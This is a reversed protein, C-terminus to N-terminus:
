GAADEWGPQQSPRGRNFVYTPLSKLM